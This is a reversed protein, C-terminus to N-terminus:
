FRCDFLDTIVVTKQWSDIQFYLNKRIKVLFTGRVKEPM